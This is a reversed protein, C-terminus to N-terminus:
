LQKGKPTTTGPLPWVGNSFKLALVGADQCFSYLMGKEADLFPLSACWGTGLRGLKSAPNFYAIERVNAPDRIDYVRIGSEFYGCALTTAHERNDVTCHHVDYILNLLGQASVRPVNVDPAVTACNKPDNVELVIDGALTPNREDAIDYIKVKAFPNRGAACAQTFPGPGKEGLAIVYPKGKIKVQIALQQWMGDRNVVESVFKMQAGPFRAQVESTDIIAFGNHYEGSTPALTGLPPAAQQTFYARNGDTTVTMGHPAVDYSFDYSGLLRPSTPDAIDIAHVVEHPYDAVYYTLGDPAFNGEHGYIYDPNPWPTSGNSRLGATPFSIATTSALLQPYRCDTKVDYVDFGNLDTSQAESALLGGIIPTGSASNTYYASVLLGRAENVKLGEGPNKMAPTSLYATEVPAAPNTMDMVTTGFEGMAGGGYVCLRGSADRMIATQQFVREGHQSQTASVQKLNCNFGTFGLLREAIPIQGQLGTEPRDGLDCASEVLAALPTRAVSGSSSGASGADSPVGGGCGAISLSLVVAVLAQPGRAPTTTTPTKSLRM